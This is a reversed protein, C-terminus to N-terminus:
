KGTGERMDMLNTPFLSSNGNSHEAAEKKGLVEKGFANDRIVFPLPKSVILPPPGPFVLVLLWFSLSTFKCFQYNWKKWLPNLCNM